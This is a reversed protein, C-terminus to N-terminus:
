IMNAPSCCKPTRQACGDAVSTARAKWDLRRKSHRKSLIQQTIDNITVFDQPEDM